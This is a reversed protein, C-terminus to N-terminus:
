KAIVELTKVIDDILEKPQIVKCKTGFSMLWGKIESIDNVYIEYLLCNDKETIKGHRRENELRAKVGYDKQFEAIVKKPEDYINVLWSTSLKKELKNLATFRINKDFDNKSIDMKYIRDFRLSFMYDNDEDYLFLYSRGYLSEYIIKLPIMNKFTKSEKTQNQYKFYEIDLRKNEDLASVAKWIHLEDLVPHFMQHDIQIFDNYIEKFSDRCEILKKYSVGYSVFNEKKIAFDLAKLFNLKSVRNFNELLDINKLYQKPSKGSIILGGSQEAESGKELRRNINKEFRSASAIYMATKKKKCDLQSYIQFLDGMEIVGLSKYTYILAFEYKLKIDNQFSFSNNKTNYYKTINDSSFYKIFRQRDHKPDIPLVSKKTDGYYIINRVTLIFNEFKEIFLRDANKM